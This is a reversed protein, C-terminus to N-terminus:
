PYTQDPFPGSALRRWSGHLRSRQAAPTALLRTSPPQSQTKKLEDAYTKEEPDRSMATGSARKQIRRYLVLPLTHSLVSIEVLTVSAERSFDITPSVAAVRLHYTRRQGILADSLADTTKRTTRALSVTATALAPSVNALSLLNVPAFADEGRDQSRENRQPKWMIRAPSATAFNIAPSVTRAHSASEGRPTVVEGSSGQDVPAAAGSGRVSSMTVAVALSVDPAPSVDVVHSGASVSRGKKPRQPTALASHGSSRSASGTELTTTPTGPNLSIDPAVAGGGRGSSREVRRPKCTARTLADITIDIAPSLGPM